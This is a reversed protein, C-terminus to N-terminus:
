PQGITGGARRLSPRKSPKRAPRAHAAETARAAERRALDDARRAAREAQAAAERALMPSRTLQPHAQVQTAFYTRWKPNALLWSVSSKSGTTSRVFLDRAATVPATSGAPLQDEVDLQARYLADNADVFDALAALWREVAPRMVEAAETELATRANALEEGLARREAALIQRAESRERAKDGPILARADDYVAQAETVDEPMLLGARVRAKADILAAYAASVKAQDSAPVDELTVPQRAERREVINEHVKRM